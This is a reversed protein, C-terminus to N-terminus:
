INAAVIQPHLEFVDALDLGRVTYYEISDIPEAGFEIQISEYSEISSFQSKIDSILEPNQSIELSYDRADKLNSVSRGERFWLTDREAHEFAIVPSEPHLPELLYFGQSSRSEEKRSGLKYLSIVQYLQPGTDASSIDVGIISGIEIWSCVRMTRDFRVMDTAKGSLQKRKSDSISNFLRSSRVSISSEEKTVDFKLCM